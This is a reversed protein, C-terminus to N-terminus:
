PTMVKSSANAPSASGPAAAKRLSVKVGQRLKDAGETVLMEGPKVGKAIEVQEGETAGLVIDRMDITSDPKVVYVFTSKPGRQVAAAPALVVGYKTNVLLKANVFQNPFLKNDTNAFELKVRVTGNTQDIQNDLTLLKGVALKHQLDRDWAEATLTKKVEMAHEVEPLNDEPMNFIMAIPQLQTIVALGTTDTAHVINGQDVSRLGIRGDLPSTIECYALNLKASDIMGQDNKVTGESQRVTAVQTDLQQKTIAATKILNQYRVLDVNANDLTAKDRAMQGEAQELVVQYPRPDIEAILDGKKVIQGETFAVKVLEGDVRTKVTVTNYATISGLGTVYIDINGKHAAVASVPLPRDGSKGSKKKGSSESQGEGIRPILFYLGVCSAVVLAAGVWWKSKL